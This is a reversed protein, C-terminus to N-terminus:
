QYVCFCCSAAWAVASLALRPPLATFAAHQLFFRVAPAPAPTYLYIFAYRVFWIVVISPLISRLLCHHKRLACAAMGAPFYRWFSLVCRACTCCAHCDAGRRIFDPLLCCRLCVCTCAAFLFRGGAGCVLFLTRPFYHPLLFRGTVLPSVHSRPGPVRHEACLRPPLAASLPPLYAALWVLRTYAFKHTLGRTAQRAHV